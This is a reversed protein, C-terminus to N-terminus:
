YIQVVLRRSASQGVRLNRGPAGASVVDVFPLMLDVDDFAAPGEDAVTYTVWYLGTVCQEYRGVNVVVRQVVSARAIDVADLYVWQNRRLASAGLIVAAFPGPLRRHNAIM